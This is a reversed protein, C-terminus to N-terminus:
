GVEANAAGEGNIKLWELGDVVIDSAQCILAVALSAPVVVLTTGTIVGYQLATLTVNYLGTM